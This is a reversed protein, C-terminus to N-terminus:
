MKKWSKVLDEAQRWVEKVDWGMDRVAGSEVLDRVASKNEKGM